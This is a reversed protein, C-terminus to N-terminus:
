LNTAYFLEQFSLDTFCPNASLKVDALLLTIGLSPFCILLGQSRELKCTLSNGPWLEPLLLGAVAWHAGSNLLCRLTQPVLPPQPESSSHCLPSLQVSLVASVQLPGPSGPWILM